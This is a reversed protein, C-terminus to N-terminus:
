KYVIVQWGEPKSITHVGMDWEHWTLEFEFSGEPVKLNRILIRPIYDPLKPQHFSLKKRPADITINLCSQLLLFVAGVSWAQPVCAVPYATPPENNRAPFGCFLEPLRQLDILLCAHFLGKLVRLSENMFGYRAMGAAVMATDHPWVSGNHYSMPNYRVADSSLTRIGWGTFMDTQMLTQVLKPARSELVIGTWLCQGANSSKVRCPNKDGDLALVFCELEKDWFLENFKKKLERAKNKLTECLDSNNMLEALYSAQLYADYVYGQVECLAIAPQAIQGDEHSICDHSDKWGQNFLGSELKQQYEVFGDKDIDGYKEIWELAALINPWIEKLTEKDATRRYYQGALSIFLPTADITGYYQRFPIEDLIAMEGGRAEHLIKGPEADRFADVKKAQNVALFKLVGKAIDPAIWLAEMATIIGDRGFATNYWPVGAYPYLGQPTIRLLSLLDFKSRDIWNSFEENSTLIEAISEKVRERTQQIKRFADLHTDPAIDNEGIQFQLSYRIELKSGADIRVPYVISSGEIWEKGADFRIWTTRKINDLGLYALKLHGEHSLEAPLVQGKKKRKMGRVEFIDAFDSRFIFSLELSHARTDYNHLIISEYCIGEQLFKSRGIHIVGKELILGNDLPIHPNTLDISFEENEMKIGSSLLMPRHGNIRFELDSIFRTGEHYIGQLGEGLQKADGWRDFVAFTDGFNLVRTQDDAYSSSALIYYRDSDLRVLLEQDKVMNM